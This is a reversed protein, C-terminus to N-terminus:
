QNGSSSQQARKEEALKQKQRMIEADKELKNSLAAGQNTNGRAQAEHKAKGKNKEARNQARQRDIERQNGRTM